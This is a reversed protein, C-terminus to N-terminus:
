KSIAYAIGDGLTALTKVGLNELSLSVLTQALEPRIGTLVVEVGLLRVARSTEVFATAVVNDVLPVGTIDIIVITAKHQWVGDLLTSMIRQIRETSIAGILPMLLTNQNLMLLPTSLQQLQQNRQEILSQIHEREQQSQKRQESVNRFCSIVYQQQTEPQYIATYVSEMVLAEDLVTYSSEVYIPKNQKIAQWFYDVTLQAEDEVLIDQLTQGVEDENPIDKKQLPKNNYVVRFTQKDELRFIVIHMPMHDFVLQFFTHIDHLNNPLHEQHFIM